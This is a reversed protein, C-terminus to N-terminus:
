SEKEINGKPKGTGIIAYVPLCRLAWLVQWHRQRQVTEPKRVPPHRVHERSKKGRGEEQVHESPTPTETPKAAHVQVNTQAKVTKKGTENTM